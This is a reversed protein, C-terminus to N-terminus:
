LLCVAKGGLLPSRAPAPVTVTGQLGAAPGPNSMLKFGLIETKDAPNLMALVTLPVGSFLWFSPLASLEVVEGCSSEGQAGCPERCDGKERVGPAWDAAARPHVEQQNEPHLLGESLVTQHCHVGPTPFLSLM